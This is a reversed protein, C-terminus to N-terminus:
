PNPVLLSPPSLSSPSSNVGMAEEGGEVRQGRERIGAGWDGTGM